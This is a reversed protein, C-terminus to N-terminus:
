HSAGRRLSAGASLVRREGLIRVALARAVGKTLRGLRFADDRARMRARALPGNTSGGGSRADGAAAFVREVFRAYTYRGSEVVHQYAAEVVAGRRDDRAVSELVERANSLDRRLPLYDVGATLIGNYDGEVLIQCTRTAACELHRPSVAAYDLGGDLGPFCAAEVEEFPAAPHMNLYALVRAQVSGDRDLVSAGGEVGITYKCRYLFRYWDNGKLTDSTQNGEGGGGASIDLALGLGHAAERVAVAVQGKLQGQRGLSPWPFWSRYGIDLDRDVRHRGLRELARLRRPDLYGTLVTEFRVHAPDVEAYIKPWESEKACSFVHAVGFDNIFRSLREGQIHEDQAIVVKAADSRRLFAVREVLRDFHDPVIRDSVFAYHFVVLDWRMREVYAPTNGNGVNLYDVTHDSWRRFSYIHDSLTARVATDRLHYVVLVNV